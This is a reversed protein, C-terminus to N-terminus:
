KVCSALRVPLIGMVIYKCGRWYMCCMEASIYEEFVLIVFVELLDLVM